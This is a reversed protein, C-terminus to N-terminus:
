KLKRPPPPNEPSFTGLEIQELSIAPRLTGVNTYVGESNLKTFIKLQEALPLEKNEEGITEAIEELLTFSYDRAVAMIAALGTDGLKQTLISFIINSISARDVSDLALMAFALRASLEVESGRLFDTSPQIAQAPSESGYLLWNPSVKLADCLLRMERAGPKNTGTEYLSLVARSIGVQEPDVMKTHVSLTQQSWDLGSRADSLRKGIEKALNDAVSKGSTTKNQM